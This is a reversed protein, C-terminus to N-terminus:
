HHVLGLELGLQIAKMQYLISTHVIALLLEYKM